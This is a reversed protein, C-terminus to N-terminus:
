YAAFITDNGFGAIPLAMIMNTEYHYVILFCVNDELSMFTFTSTLDNYLTQRELIKQKATWWTTDIETTEVSSDILMM